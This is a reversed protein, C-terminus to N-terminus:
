YDGSDDSRAGANHMGMGGKDSRTAAILKAAVATAFEEAQRGRAAATAEGESSLLHNASAATPQAGGKKKQDDLAKLQKQVETAVAKAIDWNDREAGKREAGKGEKRLKPCNRERHYFGGCGTCATRGNKDGKGEKNDGQGAYMADADDDKFVPPAGLQLLRKAADSSGTMPEAGGCSELNHLMDVQKEYGETLNGLFVEAEVAGDLSAGVLGRTRLHKFRQASELAFEMLPQGSRLRLCVADRLNDAAARGESVNPERSYLRTVLAVLQHPQKALAVEEYQPCNEIALRAEPSFSKTMAAFLQKRQAATDDLKQLHRLMLASHMTVTRDGQVPEPPFDLPPVGAESAIEDAVLPFQIAAAEYTERWWAKALGVKLHREDSHKLVVSTFSSM